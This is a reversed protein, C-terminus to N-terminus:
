AFIEKVASMEAKIAASTDFVYNYSYLIVGGYNSKAKASQIQRKIIQTDNIWEYRGDGSSDETGIKYVALGPILKVGTGSVMDQWQDLVTEYPQSNNKFGFYIQPAIYDLYGSNSCWKEVDAYMYYYNNQVNGQPAVGFLATSNGAKVASYLAKVAKDCNKMRFDSLSSYGSAAFAKSDFSADTTPYFYDDIHVGDVNYNSVIERAGAAILNVAEDYAPNLYYYSGVEIVRDGKSTSYWNGTAYSASVSKIDSTSSIRYPNIWAHFSLGQAHAERVMIELPDFSPAIGITGTVYRSWPYYESHYYADGHSRVHVYVTNIGMSVCNAYVQRISSTFQSEDKGTLMSSLEIYSIWVGRVEKYNLAKYSNSGSPQPIAASTTTAAQTTTTAATTTTTAETTTITTTTTTTTTTTEATTITTTTTTTTAATTTSVTTADAVTSQTTTTPSDTEVPPETEPVATETTPVDGSESTSDTIDTKGDATEESDRTAEISTLTTSTVSVPDAVSQETALIIGEYGDANIVIDADTVLENCSTFLFLASLLIATLRKKM